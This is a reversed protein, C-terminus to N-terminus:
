FGDGCRALSGLREVGCAAGGGEGEWVGKEGDGRGKIVVM